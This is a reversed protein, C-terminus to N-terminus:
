TQISFLGGCHGFTNLAGSDSMARSLFADIALMDSVQWPEGSGVYFDFFSLNAITRGGCSRTTIQVPIDTPTATRARTSKDSTSKAAVCVNMATVEPKSM